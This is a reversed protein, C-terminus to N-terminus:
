FQRDFHRVGDPHPPARTWYSPGGKRKFTRSMPDKGSLRMLLGTPTIGVFFFLGLLIRTNLHGLIEAFKMWPGHLPRLLAPVVAGILSFVVAAVAFGQASGTRGRWLLWLTVVAAVAGFTFGFNRLDKATAPPPTKIADTM